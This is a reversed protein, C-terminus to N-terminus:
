KTLPYNGTSEAMLFATDKISVAKKLTQISLCTRVSLSALCFICHNTNKTQLLMSPRISCLFHLSQPSILATQTTAKQKGFSKNQVFFPQTKTKKNYMGVKVAM